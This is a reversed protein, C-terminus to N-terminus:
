DAPPVDAVDAYLGQGVLGERVDEAVEANFESVTSIVEGDEDLLLAPEGSGSPAMRIYVPRPALFNSAGNSADVVGGIIGGALLNGAVSGGTRSQMYITVPDYGAATFTVMSDNGRRMEFTCPTTCTRGDIIEVGAGDPESLFEVPQNVGNIVTACGSLGISAIAVATAVKFNM